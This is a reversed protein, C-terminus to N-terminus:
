RFGATPACYAKIFHVIAWLLDLKGRSDWTKLSMLFSLTHVIASNCLHVPNRLGLYSIAQTHSSLVSRFSLPFPLTVAPSPVGRLIHCLHQGVLKMVGWCGKARSRQSPAPVHASKGLSTACCIDKSEFYVKYCDVGSFAILPVLSVTVWSTNQVHLGATSIELGHWVSTSLHPMNQCKIPTQPIVTYIHLAWAEGCLNVHRQFTLWLGASSTVDKHPMRAYYLLTNYIWSRNIDGSRTSFHLLNPSLCYYGGEKQRIHCSICCKRRQAECNGM